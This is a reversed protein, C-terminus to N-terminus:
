SVAGRQIVRVRLLDVVLVGAGALLALDAHIGFLWAASAAILAWVIPVTSEAVSRSEKAVLFGITLIATPCPVGFTPAYPYGFGEASVIAPYALGYAFFALALAYRRYTLPSSPRPARAREPTLLVVGEFVFAAAFLWAAPNIQTFFTGHYAVGAWLWNAGLAARLSRESGRCEFVWCAVAAATILWLGLAMPWLATNYRAFVDLFDARTFPMPTSM